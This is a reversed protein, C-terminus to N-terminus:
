LRRVCSAFDPHSSPVALAISQEVGGAPAVCVMDAVQASSLNLVVFSEKAVFLHKSYVLAFGHRSNLPAATNM